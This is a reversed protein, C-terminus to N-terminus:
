RLTLSCTHIHIHIFALMNLLTQIHEKIENYDASFLLYFVRNEIEAQPFLLRSKLLQHCALHLIYIPPTLLLKKLFAIM